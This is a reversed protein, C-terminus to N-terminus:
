KVYLMTKASSKGNVNLRCLYAGSAVPDLSSAEPNFMVTYTGPLKWGRALTAVERGLVDYITLKVFAPSQEITYTIVTQSNFPNPYNQQLVYEPASHGILSEQAYTLTFGLEKGVTELLPQHNGLNDYGLAWIIAGHLNKDKIYDCKHRISITDDFTILQTNSPNTIYPVYSISDWHYTWGSDEKAIIDAYSIANGGTSPGYLRSANFLRGYFALGICLKEPSIGKSLYYQVSQHVSGEQDSTPAYLPSNHGAHNTWTGHFDYTMIGIWDLLDKVAPFDYGERWDTAPAAISLTLPPRTNNFAERLEKFLLTANLRDSSTPYEWDIDAGDYGNKLCFDRLESVFQKRANSDAAMPSFADSQGWGGVSVIVPLGKQHAAQVLEPYRFDSPINLSGNSNPWIFAHAIHTLNEYKVADYPYNWRSWWTYYGIAIKGMSNTSNTFVVVLTFILILCMATSNPM